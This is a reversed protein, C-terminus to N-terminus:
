FPKSSLTRPRGLLDLRVQNLFKVEAEYLEFTHRKYYDGRHHPSKPEFLIRSKTVPTLDPSSAPQNAPLSIPQNTPKGAQKGAQKDGMKGASWGVPHCPLFGPFKSVPFCAPKGTLKGTLQNALWDVSPRQFVESFNPMESDPRLDAKPVARLEARLIAKQFVGGFASSARPLAFGPMSGAIQGQSPIWGRRM